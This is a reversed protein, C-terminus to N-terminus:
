DTSKFIQALIAVSTTTTTTTTPQQQHQHQHQPLPQPLPQPQHTNNRTTAPQPNHKNHKNHTTNTPPQPQHNTTPPQHNTTPPQRAPPQTTTPRRRHEGLSVSSAVMLSCWNEVHRHAMGAATGRIQGKVFTWVVKQAGISADGGSNKWAQYRDTCRALAHIFAGKASEVPDLRGHLLHSSNSTCHFSDSLLSFVLISFFGTTLTATCMCPHRNIILRFFFLESLELFVSRQM